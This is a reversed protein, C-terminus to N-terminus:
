VDDTGMLTTLLAILPPFGGGPPPSPEPAIAVMFACPHTASGSVVITKASITGASALTSDYAAIFANYELIVSGVSSQGAPPTAVSVVSAPNYDVYISLIKLDNVAGTGATTAWSASPGTDTATHTAIPFSHDCDTYGFVRVYIGGGNPNTFDWVTDASVVKAFLSYRPQYSGPGIEELKSWGTPASMFQADDYQDDYVVVAIVVDEGNTLGSPRPATATAGYSSGGVYIISTDVLSAAM